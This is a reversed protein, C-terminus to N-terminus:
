KTVHVVGFASPNIHDHFKWDGIKEFKFEYTEGAPIPKLADFEPYEDHTPHSASAPWFNGSSENKFFVVDGMKIDLSSPSYAKGDYVIEHVQVDVNGATEEGSFTATGNPTNKTAPPTQNQAEPTSDHTAHETIEPNSSDNSNVQKDQNQRFMVYGIGSIVLVIGIIIISTKKM